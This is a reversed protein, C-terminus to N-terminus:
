RNMPTGPPRRDLAAITPHRRLEEYAQFVIKRALLPADGWGDMVDALAAFDEPEIVGARDAVAFLNRMNWKRDGDLPQEALEAVGDGSFTEESASVFPLFKVLARLRNGNQQM